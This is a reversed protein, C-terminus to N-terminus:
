RDGDPAMPNQGQSDAAARHAERLAAAAARLAETLAQDGHEKAGNNAAEEKPTSM